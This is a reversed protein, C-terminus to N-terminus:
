RAATPASGGPARRAAGARRARDLQGVGRGARRHEGRAGGRDGAERRQDGGVDPHQAVEPDDRHDVQRDRQEAHHEHQRRRQDPGLLVPRETRSRVRAAAARGAGRALRVRGHALSRKSSRPASRAPASIPSCSSGLAVAGMGLRAGGPPAAGPCCTRRPRPSRPASPRELTAGTRGSAAWCPRPSRRGAAAAAAALGNAAGVRARCRELAVGVDARLALRQLSCAPATGAQSSASRRLHDVDALQAAPREHQREDEVAAGVAVRLDVAGLADHAAQGPTFKAVTKKVRLSRSSTRASTRLAAPALRHRRGRRRRPWGRRRRRSGSWRRRGRRRGPARRGLEAVQGLVLQAPDRRPDLASALECSLRPSPRAGLQGLLEGLQPQDM